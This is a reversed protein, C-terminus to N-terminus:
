TSIGLQEGTAAVARFVGRNNSGVGAEQGTSSRAAVVSRARLHSTLHTLSLGNPFQAEIEPLATKLVLQSGPSFVAKFGDESRKIWRMLTGRGDLMIFFLIDQNRRALEIGRNWLIAGM